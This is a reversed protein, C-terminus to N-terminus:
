GLYDLSAAYKEVSLEVLGGCPIALNHDEHGSPFHHLVPFDYDAVHEDIIQHHTKGFPVTSDKSNSFHGIILGALKKLKGARKLQVMMRDINYLYENIDELFLIKGDTEIESKSGIGHALMCLNGGVIEAKISGSKNQYDASLLFSLEVKSSEGFLLKRLFETSDAAELKCFTRPMPGHISQFGLNQIRGHVATIDSFGIVWKPSKEFQKFSLEDVFRSSGYGGRAAFIAKINPEDLMTQFDKKRVEDSGAFDHFEARVSTGICVELGWNAQMLAIGPQLDEFAVKSAPAILGVKDGPKLFPPRIFTQKM